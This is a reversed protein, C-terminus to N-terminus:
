FFSKSMSTESSATGKFHKREKTEKQKAVIDDDIGEDANSAASEHEM